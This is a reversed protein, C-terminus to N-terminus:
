FIRSRLVKRSFDGSRLVKRMVSSNLQRQVLLLTIVCWMHAQVVDAGANCQLFCERRAEGLLTRM